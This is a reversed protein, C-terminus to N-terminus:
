DLCKFKKMVRGNADLYFGYIWTPRNRTEFGLLHKARPNKFMSDTKYIPAKNLNEHLPLYHSRVEKESMGIQISNYTRAYAPREGFMWWGAVAITMVLLFIILAAVLCGTRLKM